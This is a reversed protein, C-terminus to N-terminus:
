WWRSAAGMALLGCLTMDCTMLILRWPHHISRPLDAAASWSFSPLVTATMMTPLLHACPPACSLRRGRNSRDDLAVSFRAGFEAKERVWQPECNVWGTRHIVPEKMGCATRCWVVTCRLGGIRMTCTESEHM